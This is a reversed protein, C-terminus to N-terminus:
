KIRSFDVSEGYYGNSEGLWRIVVQGKATSIRYFTWTWSESYEHPKDDNNSSEQARIIPSGILDSVDGCVDEIIVSECCSQQHYMKYIEGSCTEFFATEEGKKIDARILTKGILEKIQTTYM